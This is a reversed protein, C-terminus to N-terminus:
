LGHLIHAIDRRRQQGRFRLRNADPDQANGDQINEPMDNNNCDEEPFDNEDGLYKAVNHLMFCAVILSSIKELSLGVKYQLIPFRQKLHGFCREIVVREKAQHINFTLEQPTEPNMFPTMLWPTIPYGKDGLLIADTRSQAMFTAATSNRWIRSDHVSGPWQADVSTFVENANCTAQVNITAQGKRNVFEDGQIGSPKPIRVHTCDLAGIVCSIHFAEKDQWAAKANEIDNASTPFKLWVHSKEIMQYLVKTITKSVTSQQIGIDEGVGVQFGPDGVYRLFVRLQQNATLAGGRTEGNNTLFHEAMWEVNEEEFRYLDKFETDRCQRRAVYGKERRPIM